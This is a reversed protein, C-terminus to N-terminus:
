SRSTYGLTTLKTVADGLEHAGKANGLSKQLYALGAKPTKLKAIAASAARTAQATDREGQALEANAAEANKPAKLKAVEDGIRQSAAAFTDLRQRLEAVTKAQLGQAVQAQASNSQQKVKALQARHAGASLRSSGGCAALLLVVAVVIVVGGRM